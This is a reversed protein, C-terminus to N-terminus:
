KSIIMKRGFGHRGKLKTEKRELSKQNRHYAHMILDLVRDVFVLVKETGNEM